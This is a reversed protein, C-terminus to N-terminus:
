NNKYKIVISWYGWKSRSMSVIKLAENKWKKIKKIKDIDPTKWKNSGYYESMKKHFEDIIFITNEYKWKIYQEKNLRSIRYWENSLEKKNFKNNHYFKHFTIPDIREQM